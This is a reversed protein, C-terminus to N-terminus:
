EQWQSFLTHISTSYSNGVEQWDTKIVAQVQAYAGSGTTTFIIYRQYFANLFPCDSGTTVTAGWSPEENQFCYVNNSAHNVFTLWNTNKEERVWEMLQNTYHRAKLKNIQLTNQQLMVTVITAASVLFMSLISIFIIVEILSFSKRM